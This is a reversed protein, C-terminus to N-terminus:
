LADDSMDGKAIRRKTILVVAALVVMIGGVIYLITTGMGGTSPLETGSNNAVDISANADTITSAPTRGTLKNYGDPAHTEEFEYSGNELGKVVITGSKGVVLETIGTEGAMALRYTNNTTAAADVTGDGCGEGTMLVVSIPTTGGQAYLEFKAGGLPSDDTTEETNNGDKKNLTLNYNKVKTTDSGKDKNDESKTDIMLGGTNQEEGTVVADSNIKASYTIEYTNNALNAYDKFTPEGTNADVTATVIDITTVWEGDANKAYAVTYDTGSTLTTGNIKVAVNQDATLGSTMTDKFHLAKVYDTGEYQTFTGKVRYWVTDGVSATPIPNEVANAGAYLWNASASAPDVVSEEKDPTTTEQNKDIVTVDKLASDITVATGNTTTIYYYGYGLGDFVLEGGTGNKTTGAPLNAAQAGFFAAVDAAKKGDKLAVNYTDTEGVQTLTFPSSEGLLATLLADTEGAKTYTYSVKQDAGSGAYTADFIKTATYTKGSTTNSVTISGDDAAFALASSFALAMVAVLMATLLKKMHRM